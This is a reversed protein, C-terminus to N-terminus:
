LFLPPSAASFATQFMDFDQRAPSPLFDDLATGPRILRPRQAV